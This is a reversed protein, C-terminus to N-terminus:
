VSCLIRCLRILASNNTAALVPPAALSVAHDLEEHREALDLEDEDDVFVSLDFQYHARKSRSSKLLLVKKECSCLNLM